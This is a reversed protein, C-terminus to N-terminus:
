FFVPGSLMGALTILNAAFTVSECKVLMILLSRTLFENGSDAFMADTVGTEFLCCTM